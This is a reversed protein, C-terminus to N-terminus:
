EEKNYFNIIKVQINRLYESIVLEKCKKMIKQFNIYIRKKDGM